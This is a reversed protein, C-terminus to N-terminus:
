DDFLDDLDFPADDDGDDDTDDDEGAVRPPVPVPRAGSGTPAPGVVGAPAVIPPGLDPPTATATAEVTIVAAVALVVAALGGTLLATKSPM